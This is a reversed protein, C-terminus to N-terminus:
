WWPSPGRRAKTRRTSVPLRSDEQADNLTVLCVWRSAASPSQCPPPHPPPSDLSRFFALARPPQPAQQAHKPKVTPLETSRSNDYVKTKVDVVCYPQDM